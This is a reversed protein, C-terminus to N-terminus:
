EPCAFLEVKTSFLCCVIFGRIQMCLLRARVFLLTEEFGPIPLARHMILLLISLDLLCNCHGPLIGM